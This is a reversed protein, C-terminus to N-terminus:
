TVPFTDDGVPSLTTASAREAASVGAPVLGQSLSYGKGTVDVTTEGRGM